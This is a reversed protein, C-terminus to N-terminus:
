RLNEKKLCTLYLRVERAVGRAGVPVARLNELQFETPVEDDGAGPGGAGGPGNPRAGGGRGGGPKEPKRGGTGGGGPTLRGTGPQVRRKKPKRKGKHIKIQIGRENAGDDPGEAASSLLYKAM